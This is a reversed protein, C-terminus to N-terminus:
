RCADPGAADFSLRTLRLHDLLATNVRGDMNEDRDTFALVLTYEDAPLELRLGTGYGWDTWRDTGRQPMVLVGIDDSGVRLTRIAAKADTNIPGSGNAYRPEVLYVGSCAITVPIEITTNTERTLRVYGDGSFGAHERELPAGMPRAVIVAGEPEVRVPESLFSTLGSSDVAAVQYEAVVGGRMPFQRELTGQEIGGDKFVLYRVAGPVAEWVLLGGEMRAAPTEASWHNEVGNIATPTWRGNMQIEMTHAGALTAPIEAREVPRGDLRVSAVADGHGRVTITLVAGRYRLGSLTREGAYAPPVMPRLELRDPRFRMGFLVRYSTALNGAVSWLQRDSNLETGDFHGTSAVMNEKNTLFLAAPRYISALGHEVGATSGADASAWAWFASVFPWLAGNHYVPIQPIYPWFTPAGFEVVPLSAAAAAAREPSLRGYIVHLAEALADSRPELTAAVRGYRFVAHHGTHPLTLHQQIAAEIGEAVEKWDQPPHGLAEAMDALIHYTAAHVVNTSLAASQAIDRPDMWRPYSQERWDMFSTEGKVLGTSLDFVAHLDARVSRSIIGYATRLWEQDGTVAYLEWAALAWTMRDTSIPWSGGTGTDQIIRGASDVKAMLSRRVADPAVIALALVSSYAVDRTWVGPWKAGASLAGDERVLQTLEELSLNYLADVLLEPSRLQPFASIDARRRWVARGEGALPRTYQAEVPITLTYIGDGDPDTLQAPGGPRLGRADWTLPEVDGIAYVADLRRIPEGYPPDYSGTRELAQRVHRLDLSITVRAVGEESTPYAEPTPIFPPQEQGFVYVPSEIRGAAPRIYLTHETGSPFENDQGNLSFRFHMERGARPYTSVISDRSLATATWRGQRVETRTVTFADSQYLPTQAQTDVAGAGVTLAVIGPAVTRLPLNM